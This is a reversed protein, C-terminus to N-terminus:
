WRYSERHRVVSEVQSRHLGIDKLTHDDLAELQTMTLRTEREQRMRSWFRAVSAAVKASWGPSATRARASREAAETMRPQSANLWPVDSGHGGQDQWRTRSNRELKQGDILARNDVISPSMAEGYAAFSEILCAVLWPMTTATRRGPANPEFRSQPGNSAPGESAKEAACTGPHVKGTIRMSREWM